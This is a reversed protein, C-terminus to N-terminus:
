ETIDAGSEHREGGFTLAITSEDGQTELKSLESNLLLEEIDWTATAYRGMTVLTRSDESFSLEIGYFNM